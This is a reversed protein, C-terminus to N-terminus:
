NRYIKANLQWLQRDIAKSVKLKIEKKSYNKIEYITDNDYIKDLCRIILEFMYDKDLSLFEKDSYLSASPYKMIIGATDTIKINNDINEPFIVKVENLNLDFNYTKKDENDVYTLKVINDVSLSRLKLFLFELDFTTLKDIDFSNELNCNNVVQKISTLYESSDNNEKAMLLLKEEKVLFPRFKNKVKTSPIEINYIPYDLKPLSM